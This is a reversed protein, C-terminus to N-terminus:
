YKISFSASNTTCETSYPELIVEEDEKFEPPLVKCHFFAIFSSQNSLESFSGFLSLRSSFPCLTGENQSAKKLPLDPL